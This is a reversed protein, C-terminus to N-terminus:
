RLEGVARELVCAGLISVARGTSGCKSSPGDSKKADHDKADHGGSLLACFRSSVSFSVPIPGIFFSTSM